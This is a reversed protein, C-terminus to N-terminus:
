QRKRVELVTAPIVTLCAYAILVLLPMYGQRLMAMVALAFAGLLAVLLLARASLAFALGGFAAVIVELTEAKYPAPQPDTPESPTSPIPTEQPTPDAITDM